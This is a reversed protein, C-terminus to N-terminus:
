KEPAPDEKLNFLRTVQNIIVDGKKLSLTIKNEGMPLGEIYMPQWKTVNHTEGNINVDLSYSNTGLEANSIYYDLMVKKTDAGVYTGKPRSYTVLAEGPNSSAVIRNDIVRVKKLIHAAKTKISEHYSRSLFALVMHDGDVLRHDFKSVYKAAYPQNDVILHIHQGKASNACMKAGADPTQSGLKYDDGSVDFSFTGNDYVMNTLNANPYDTSTTFPTLTYKNKVPTPAANTVAKTANNDNKCSIVLSLGIIAYIFHKM